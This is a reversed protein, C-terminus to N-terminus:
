ERDRMYDLLKALQLLASGNVSRWMMAIATVRPGDSVVRVICADLTMALPEAFEAVELYVSVNEDRAVATLSPDDVRVLMGSASINAVPLLYAESRRRLEVHACLEVRDSQRREVGAPPLPRRTQTTRLRIVRM